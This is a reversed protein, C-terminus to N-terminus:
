EEAAPTLQSAGSQMAESVEAIVKRWANLVAAEPGVELYQGLAWILADEVMQYHRPLVGYAVHRQGMAHLTSTLSEFQNLNAVVAALMEMLKLGQRAIDGHFMPRLGPDLQFLRGYFLLSLPGADERMAQFSDIVLQKEKQTM